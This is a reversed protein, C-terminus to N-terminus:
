VTITYAKLGLLPLHTESLELSAQDVSATGPCGPCVNVSFFETM